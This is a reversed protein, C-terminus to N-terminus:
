MLLYTGKVLITPKLNTGNDKPQVINSPTIKCQFANEDSDFKIPNDVTSTSVLCSNNTINPIPVDTPETVENYAELDSRNALINMEKLVVFESNYIRYQPGDDQSPSLTPSLVGFHEFLYGETVSYKEVGVETFIQWTRANEKFTVIGTVYVGCPYYMMAGYDNESNLRSLPPIPITLYTLPAWLNPGTGLNITTGSALGGKGAPPGYNLKSEFAFYREEINNNININNPFTSSGNANFEFNPIYNIGNTEIHSGRYKPM